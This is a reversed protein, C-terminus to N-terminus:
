HTVIGGTRRPESPSTTKHGLQARGLGLGARNLKEAAERLVREDKIAYRRFIEATEHGLIQMATSEDIGARLLNRAATRRFDHMLKGDLGAAKCAKRWSELPQRIQHGYRHFVFDCEPFLDRHERWQTEILARPEDWLCIVRGEGSKTSGPDLRVTGNVLDVQRWRLSFIESKIRWGSHYAFAIPPRLWGPLHPLLRELEEVEFFGRRPTGEAPMPIHPMAAILGDQLALRFMRKLAAMERRIGGTQAGENLRMAQYGRIESATISALERGGFSRALHKEVRRRADDFTRCRKMKMDAYFIDRAKEFTPVDNEPL